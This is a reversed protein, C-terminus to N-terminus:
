AEEVIADVVIYDEVVAEGNLIPCDYNMCGECVAGDNPCLMIM